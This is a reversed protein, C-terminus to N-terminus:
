SRRGGELEFLCKIILRGIGRNMRVEACADFKELLKLLIPVELRRKAQQTLLFAKTTGPGHKEYINAVDNMFSAARRDLSALEPLRAIEKLLAGVNDMVTM